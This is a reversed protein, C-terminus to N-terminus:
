SPSVPGTRDTVWAAVRDGLEVDHPLAMLEARTARVGRGRLEDAVRGWHVSEMDEWTAGDPPEDPGVVTRANREVQARSEPPHVGPPHTGSTWGRDDLVVIRRGDDLVADLRADFSVARADARPPRLEVFTVFRTVAAPVTVRGDLRITWPEIADVVLHSGAWPDRALRERVADASPASVAHVVREDELPGGLVVFGDAVLADMFAAHEEWGSQRELPRAPDFSPGSQRLVVHFMM